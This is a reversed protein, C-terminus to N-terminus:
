LNQHHVTAVPMATIYQAADVDKNAAKDIRSISGPGSSSTAESKAAWRQLDYGPFTKRM